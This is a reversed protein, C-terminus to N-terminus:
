VSSRSCGSRRLRRVGGRRVLMLLQLLNSGCCTAIARAWSVEDARRQRLAARRVAAGGHRRRRRRAARERARGAGLFREANGVAARVEPRGDRFDRLSTRPGCSRSSSPAFRKSRPPAAPTCARRVARHQRARASGVRLVDDLEAAGDARDGHLALGRRSPVRPEPTVRLRLEGIELEDGVAAGLRAM